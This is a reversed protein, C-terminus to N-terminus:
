DLLTSSGLLLGLISPLWNVLYHCVVGPWLTRTKIFILGLLCGALAQMILAYLVSALGGQNALVSYDLLVHSSAFLLGSAVVAWRQSVVRELRNQIIGRYFFEEIFANNYILLLLVGASISTIGVVTEGTWFAVVGSITGFLVAFIAVGPSRNKITLGLESIPYRNVRLSLYLPLMLFLLTIFPLYILERVVPQNIARLLHPDILVQWITNAVLAMVWLACVIGIERRPSTSQPLRPPYPVIHRDLLWVCGAIIILYFFQWLM